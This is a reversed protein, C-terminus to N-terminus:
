LYVDDEEYHDHNTDEGEVISSLLRKKKGSGGGSTGETGEVLEKKREKSIRFIAPVPANNEQELLRDKMERHMLSLPKRKIEELIMKKRSDDFFIREQSSM